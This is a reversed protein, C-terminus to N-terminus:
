VLSKNATWEDTIGKELRSKVAPGIAPGIM